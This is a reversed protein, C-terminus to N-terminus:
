TWSYGSKVLPLSRIRVGTAAFIANAIAPVAPPLSPEGLGTPNNNSLVFKVEVSTPVQPMRTPPYQPFNGQVVRGKDITIEWGMVHSMGEVFGGEVLNKAMSTNVIQSGIDVACWARNIKVKKNADVAAEVVYAVYGAHAFQFAVGMGTGRPLKPRATTWNSMERVAELVGIARAANFGGGGGGGRGGAAPAGPAPAGAPPAAPPNPSRLLELRYELPDKGAAIAVEDIFSQMVFSVGNTSPARLAGTPINFPQVPASSIQLNPVFGTPFEGTPTVSSVSAVFDRFAIMKGSADLGAKFYHFGGPRYNDHAMDDERTWLLKVPVSPQGAAAREDAVVRAIKAVEYDYESALRRGFGGGARVLHMTVDTNQVGAAQAPGAIGPIQSPSWIELKGDKFHATSNQPELPAHAILPFYYEAEVTKAASQFATEVNGVVANGRGGATPPQSAQASLAKAAVAYGDSTQTATAGEEWVVKLSKRANNALWWNDAVIAVGPVLGQGQGGQIQIRDVIFAHKVGPLKKIEDLNASVPRGGFVPCKEYVAHLMGPPNIDVSFAPQGTVIKLNDVGPLPKGIIKFDKPDKLAVNAPAPMTAAKAALSGYTATRRSATHTVVGGATTLETVPVSWNDAAAALMMARGAAGVQRMTAYNTPIATSGGEIQSGYKPDLDAQQIKVQSWNVDLEDAIIQPLANRIGQGTEPNKAIITFTNDPNITIYTQPTNQPGPGGGRPAQSLAEPAYIGIMMGGGALATVHLFSRRDLKKLNLTKKM